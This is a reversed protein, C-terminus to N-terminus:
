APNPRLSILRKGNYPAKFLFYPFLDTTKGTIDLYYLEIQVIRKFFEGKEASLLKTFFARLTLLMLVTTGKAMFGPMMFVWVSISAHNQFTNIFSIVPCEKFLVQDCAFQKIKGVRNL